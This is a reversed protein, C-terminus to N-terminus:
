RNARKGGLDLCAEGSFKACVHAKKGLFSPVSAVFCQAHNEVFNSQMSVVLLSDFSHVNIGLIM